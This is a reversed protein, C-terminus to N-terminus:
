AADAESAEPEAPQGQEASPQEQPEPTEEEGKIAALIAHRYIFAVVAGACALVALLIYIWTKKKM